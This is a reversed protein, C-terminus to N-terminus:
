TIGHLAHCFLFLQSVQIRVNLDVECLENEIRITKAQNVPVIQHTSVDYKSGATVQLIYNEAMNGRPDGRLKNASYTSPFPLKERSQYKYPVECM